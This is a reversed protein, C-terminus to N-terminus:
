PLAFADQQEPGHPVDISEEGTRLARVVARAPYEASHTVLGPWSEEGLVYRAGAFDTATISPLVVSVAIGDSALEVRAVASLMNVASKTAAYPGAGVPVMRTTGSSLNVVRGFGAARMAPLVAQTMRVLGIVNIDLVARLEDIDVEGVPEHLSVGANNVLGDVRGHRDLTAAAARSVDAGNTIDATITLARDLAQGLEALRDASRDVLVPFAGADHLLRAIAAGIGSAAGTVVIVRGRLDIVEPSRDPETVAHGGKSPQAPALALAPVATM